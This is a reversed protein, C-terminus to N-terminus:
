NAVKVAGPFMAALRGITGNQAEARAPTPGRHEAQWKAFADKSLAIAVATAVTATLVEADQKHREVLADM